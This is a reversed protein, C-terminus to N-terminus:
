AAAFFSRIRASTLLYYGLYGLGAVVVLAVLLDDLSVSNSVIIRKAVRYALRGSLLLSYVGALYQGWRRRLLIGLLCALNAVLFVANRTDYFNWAENRRLWEGLGLMAYLIFVSYAGALVVLVWPWSAATEGSAEIRKRGRNSLAHVFGLFAHLVIWIIVAVPLFVIGPPHGRRATFLM